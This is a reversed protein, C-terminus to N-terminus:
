SLLVEVPGALTGFSTLQDLSLGGGFTTLCAFAIGGFGAPVPVSGSSTGTKTIPQFMPASINQNVMAIYLPTDPAVTVFFTSPDWDFHIATGATVAPQLHIPSLTTVNLKPLKVIPLQQPCSVVFMQALNFAWVASLGTDFSTPFPSAGLGTRLYTDHRAEVALISGAAEELVPSDTLQESGGLYAGLGVNTIM